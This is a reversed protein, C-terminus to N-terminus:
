IYNRVFEFLKIIYKEEELLLFNKKEMNKEALSIGEEIAHVVICNPAKFNKDRTVIINTRSPLPRGISQYNTRGM